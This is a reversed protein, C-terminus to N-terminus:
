DVNKVVRSLNLTKLISNKADEAKKISNSECFYTVKGIKVKLLGNKKSAILLRNMFNLRDNIINKLSGFENGIFIEIKNSSLCKLRKEILDRAGKFKEYDKKINNLLFKSNELIKEDSLFIKNNDIKVKKYFNMPVKISEYDYEVCSAIDKIIFESSIDVQTTIPIIRTTKNKFNQLLTSVVDYAFGRALLIIPLKDEIHFNVLQELQSVREVVGDYTVFRCEDFSLKEGFEKIQTIPFELSNSHLVYSERDSSNILVSTNAGAKELSNIIATRLIGVDIDELIELLDTKSFKGIKDIEIKENCLLSLLIVSSGVSQQESKYLHRLLMDKSVVDGTRIESLITFIDYRNLFIIRDNFVLHPQRFFTSKFVDRSLRAINKTLKNDLKVTEGSITQLM